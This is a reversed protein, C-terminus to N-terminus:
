TRNYKKIKQNKNSNFLLVEVTLIRESIEKM